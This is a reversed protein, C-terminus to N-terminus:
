QVWVGYRVKCAPHPVKANNSNTTVVWTSFPISYRSLWVKSARLKRRSYPTQEWPFSFHLLTFTGCRAQLTHTRLKNENYPIYRVNSAVHPDAFTKPKYRYIYPIYLSCLSGVWVNCAVHPVNSVESYTVCREKGSLVFEMSVGQLCPATCKKYLIPRAWKAHERWYYLM